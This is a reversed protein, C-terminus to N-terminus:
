PVVRLSLRDIRLGDMHEVTLVATRQGPRDPDSPDPVPVEASDGRLPIRGLLRLVLGAVTDYEEGEPLAVGTLDEVEDPRLLGSLSWTGDRRLRARAGLTDHEDAIDGVIEEIVDELTVIGAQDGYEDLVIALQFSEKRLLALLPDLRLSDPVVIPKAMLHKVRTTAREHVPLAVANKVHITGVVSEHEDLVPFRSHGTRRALEIVAQARDGDELSHQRVRPTMIEGATRTGFEVSREMLEATDADLTGEDASRQILSTLESSSRASRLEEQPEVGFRRVLTNATGNLLRIPGANLKAFARLPAQTAKATRMPLALAINKPVLEGFVMTVISSLVLGVVVSIPAIASEGVGISRLPPGILGSVAPEAIWGIALNTLTIGLQAGSLNSSLTRLAQQVGSATGDGAAVEQDVTTRDVTVLAFEAAVFFGCAAVLLLVLVLLLASTLM